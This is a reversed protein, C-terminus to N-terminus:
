WGGHLMINIDPYIEMNHDNHMHRKLVIRNMFIDSCEYCWSGDAKCEKEIKKDYEKQKQYYEEDSEKIEANGDLQEIINEDQTNKAMDEPDNNKNESDESTM